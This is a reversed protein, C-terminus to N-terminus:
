GGRIPKFAVIRTAANLNEKTITQLQKLTNSIQVAINWDDEHLQEIEEFSLQKNEHGHQIIEVNFLQKEIM